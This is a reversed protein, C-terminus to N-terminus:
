NSYHENLKKTMVVVPNAKMRDTRCFPVEYKNRTGTRAPRQGIPLEKFWRKGYREKNENKLAFSLIASDRRKELTDIGKAAMVAEINTNWGYIIRLAQKQISELKESLAVPIMSHYVIACYEVASRLVTNYIEM